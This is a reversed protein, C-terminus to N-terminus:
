QRWVIQDTESDRIAGNTMPEGWMEVAHAITDQMERTADELTAFTTLEPDNSITDGEFTGNTITGIEYRKTQTM